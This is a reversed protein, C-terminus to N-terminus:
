IKSIRGQRTSCLIIDTLSLFKGGAHDDHTILTQGLHIEQTKVGSPYTEGCKIPSFEHVDDVQGSETEM